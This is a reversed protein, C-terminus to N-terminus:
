GAFRITTVPMELQRRVPMAWHKPNGDGDRFELFYGWDGNGSDRSQATVHMESCIWMAPLPDGQQSFGHYWVGREDVNFFPRGSESAPTTKRSKDADKGQKRAKREGKPEPAHPKDDAVAVVPETATIAILIQRRVEDIGAAAALDNFDTGGAQLGEPKCWVGAVAAASETASVVGPNKGTRAATESDDDACLLLRADPLMRRIAPAVHRMNVENFAVVVAYGTAAHLTAATAYGEAILVWATAALPGIVHFCGSVRGGAPFRKDGNPHIRQVNWLKGAGDRLPVLVVKGSEFRVGHPQVGKRVLYASNGTETAAEWDKAAMAAMAEHEKAQAEIAARDREEREKHLRARDAASLPAVPAYDKPNFGYKKAEAILSGITVAGGPKIGKWTSKVAKADFTKGGESWDNFLSFGAEGFESKLAMGMRYWVDRDDPPIVALAARAVEESVPYRKKSM